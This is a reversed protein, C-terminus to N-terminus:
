LGFREIIRKALEFMVEQNDKPLNEFPVKCDDKVNWGKCESIENYQDHLWEALIIYCTM